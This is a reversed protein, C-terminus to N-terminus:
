DQSALEHGQRNNIKSITEVRGTVFNIATEHQKLKEEHVAIKTDHEALKEHDAKITMYTQTVFFGVVVLLLSNAWQHLEIKSTPFAAM